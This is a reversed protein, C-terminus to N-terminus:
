NNKKFKLSKGAINKMISAAHALDPEAWFQGTAEVYDKRGVKCPKYRVLSASGPLCFDVNGGHDTAIVNLGLLLAEAVGRGFGETRHLSVFCDCM